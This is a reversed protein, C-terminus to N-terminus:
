GWFAHIFLATAIGLVMGFLVEIRTHGLFEVLKEQSFRHTKFMEDVIQNLLRAQQGAARRVSQADIMVLMALGFAVAFIPSGFGCLLGISTAAACVSASHSSPMGGLRFLFAPDFSRNRIAFFLLKLFQALFWAAMGTWITINHFVNNDLTTM